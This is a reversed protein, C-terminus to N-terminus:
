CIQPRLPALIWKRKDKCIIVWLIVPLLKAQVPTKPIIDEFIRLYIMTNKPPVNAKCKDCKWTWFISCTKYITCKEDYIKGSLINKPSFQIYKGKPAPTWKNSDLTSYQVSSKMVPWQYATLPKNWLFAVIKLM